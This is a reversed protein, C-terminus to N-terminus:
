KALQLLTLDNKISKDNINLSDVDLLKVIEEKSSYRFNLDLFALISRRLLESYEYINKFLYDYDESSLLSAHVIYNRIEYFKKVLSFIADKEEENESLLFAVRKALNKGKKHEDGKLYLSEFGITYDLLKEIIASHPNLNLSYKLFLHIPLFCRTDIDKLINPPKLFPSDILFNLPKLYKEEIMTKFFKEFTDIESRSLIYFNQTFGFGLGFIEGHLQREYWKNKWYTFCFPMLLDGKKFLKMVLFLPFLFFSSQRFLAEEASEGRGFHYWYCLIYNDEPSNAFYKLNKCFTKKDEITLKQIWFHSFIPFTFKLCESDSKFNRLVVCIQAENM